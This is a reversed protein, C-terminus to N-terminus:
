SSSTEACLVDFVYGKGKGFTSYLACQLEAARDWGRTASVIISAEHLGNGVRGRRLAQLHNASRM